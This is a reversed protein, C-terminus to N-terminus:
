QKPEGLQDIEAASILEGNKRCIDACEKRVEVITHAMATVVDKRLEEMAYAAGEQFAKQYAANNM